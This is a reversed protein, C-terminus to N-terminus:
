QGDTWKLISATKVRFFNNDGDEIVRYEPHNGWSAPVDVLSTDEHTDNDVLDKILSQWANIRAISSDYTLLGGDSALERLYKTYIAKYDDFALIKNVLPAVSVDSTGWHYPDQTVADTQVGVASTTGLTNDFDHPLMYVQYDTASTSNVYLYVNNGGNNWYDDWMGIGAYVSYTKLFLDVDMHSGIWDHFTDGTLTNLNTIFDSLQAKAGDLGTSSSALEYIAGEGDEEMIYPITAPTLRAGYNCSWLNGEASGFSSARRELYPKDYPEYMQYIGFYAPELDKGVQIFVKVYVDEPGTWVGFRRFLDYSYLERVYNSDDKFWKLVLKRVGGINNGSDYKDLSIGFHAHHWNAGNSKHLQGSVGEPRRRSTNGKISLAIDRVAFSENGKVYSLDAHVNERTRSNKDFALLLTNWEDESVKIYVSPVGTTTNDFMYTVGDTVTPNIHGDEFGPPVSPSIVTDEPAPVIVERVEEVVKDKECGAALALASLIIIYYAKMTTM